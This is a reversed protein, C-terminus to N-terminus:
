AAGGTPSKRHAFGTGGGFAASIWSWLCAIAHV